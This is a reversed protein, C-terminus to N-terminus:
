LMPAKPLPRILLPLKLPPLKLLPLTLLPLIKFTRTRRPQVRPPRPPVLACPRACSATPIPSSSNFSRRQQQQLPSPISPLPPPVCDLMAIKKAEAKDEWAGCMMVQSLLEGISALM